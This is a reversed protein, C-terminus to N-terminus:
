CHFPHVPQSWVVGREANAGASDPRDRLDVPVVEPELGKEALVLRVRACFPCGAADYLKM